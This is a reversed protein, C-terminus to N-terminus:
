ELAGAKLLSAIRNLQEDTLKPSGALVKDVHRTLKDAILIRRNEDYRSRRRFVSARWAASGPDDTAVRDWRRGSRSTEASM